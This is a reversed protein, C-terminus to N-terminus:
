FRRRKRVMLCEVYQEPGPMTLERESDFGVKMYFSTASKNAEVFIDIGEDDAIECARELLRTGISSGKYEHDVGFYQVVLHRRDGILAERHEGAGKFMSACGEKDHDDTLPFSTFSGGGKQGREFRRLLLVGVARKSDDTAQTDVAILPYCTPDEVESEFISCWWQRVLPTDPFCKRHYPNVPHFARAELTSMSLVENQTAETISVHAM